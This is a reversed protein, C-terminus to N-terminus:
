WDMTGNAYVKLGLTGYHVHLGWQWTCTCQYIYWIYVLATSCEAYWSCLPVSCAWCYICVCMCYYERTCGSRYILQHMCHLTGGYCASDKSACVRAALWGRPAAVCVCWAALARLAVLLQRLLECGTGKCLALLGPPHLPVTGATPHVAARTGPCVPPVQLSRSEGCWGVYM